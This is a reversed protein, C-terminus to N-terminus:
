QFDKKRGRRLGLPHNSVPVLKDLKIEFSGGDAIYEEQIKTLNELVMRDILNSRNIDVIISKRKPLLELKRKLPLWNTFVIAHSVDVVFNEGENYISFVPKFINRFKLGYFFHFVIKIFIGSFIGLLLDTSLTVIVTVGFIALQDLGIKLLHKVQLPNALRYGTYILMAALAALPILHIIGPFFLVFILLFLGHYFNSWLSRAGSSINASSRVIETIMPLGGVMGALFNGFGVGTLDRNLDSKRKWRDIIDVAKGSLLSELSGVLAFMIIYKISIASFINSFDPFTVAQIINDPLTVLFEPGTFFEIGGFFHHNEKDLEFASGLIVAILLVVLQPPIKSLLGSKIFPIFFLILLSIIGIIAIPPNVKSISHPIELLLGITSNAEPKVGILVHIQRAAIIIGISALMGQVAASPFFDGLIGSKMIGFFMQLIGAIVIAALAFKYGALPDGAGLEEVAGLAIVILGAAPGKIAVHSGGFFSVVLGGIIATFIGAVPPFGSAMSIGLCLPLAILFVFFGATVDNKFHANFAKFGTEPLQNRNM